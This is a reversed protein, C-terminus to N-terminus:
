LLSVHYALLVTYTGAAIWLGVRALSFNKHLCLVVLPVTILFSKLAVFGLRGTELMLEAVPNLEIGGGQLHLLTFFTDGANMAAIWIMLGWLRVSYQDVFTNLAEEARRGGRRRGGFLTYRSFRPTPRERRDPGRYARTEVQPSGGTAPPLSESATM